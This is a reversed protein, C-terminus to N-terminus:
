RTSRKFVFIDLVIALGFLVWGLIRTVKAFRRYNIENNRRDYHDIVISLLNAVACAFAGLMIWMPEGHM